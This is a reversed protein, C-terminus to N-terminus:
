VEEEGHEDSRRTSGIQAFALRSGAAPCCSARV